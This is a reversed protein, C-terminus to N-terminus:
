IIKKAEMFLSDPKYVSGDPETDLDYKQWDAIYSESATRKTVEKFGANKLLRSLSFRDYMWQHIEGSMRFKGLEYYGGTINNKLKKFFLKIAHPSVIKKVRKKWGKVTRAAKKATMIEFFHGMRSKVFDANIIREQHYYKKMEGGGYTRVTQDYMELMTWDYNAEAIKDNEALELFKLYNKAIAELDPVAIRIIGGPKLVRYCEAIFKEADTKTFHELVHSHYVVDFSNDPYPIGKNLNYARVNKDNSVFDINVWGDRFRAGCGLNLMKKRQTKEEM